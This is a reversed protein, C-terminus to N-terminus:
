RRGGDWELCGGDGVFGLREYFRTLRELDSGYGRPTVVIVEGKLLGQLRRVAQSGMGQGREGENEVKVRNLFWQGPGWWSAQAIAISRGKRVFMVSAVQASRTEHWGDKM